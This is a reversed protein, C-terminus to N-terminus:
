TQRFILCGLDRPKDSNEMKFDSFILTGGNMRFGRARAMSRQKLIEEKICERAKYAEAQAAKRLEWM